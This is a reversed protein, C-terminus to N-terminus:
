SERKMKLQQPDMLLLGYPSGEWAPAFQIAGEILGNGIFYYCVDRLQTRVDPHGIRPDDHYVHEAVDIM